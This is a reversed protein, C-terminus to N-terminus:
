NVKVAKSLVLTNLKLEYKSTLSKKYRHSPLHGQLSFPHLTFEFKDIFVERFCFAWIMIVLIPGTALIFFVILHNILPFMMQKCYMQSKVIQTM